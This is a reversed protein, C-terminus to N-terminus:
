ALGDTKIIFSIVLLRMISLFFSLGLFINFIESIAAEEAIDILFRKIIIM